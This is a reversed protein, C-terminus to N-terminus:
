SHFRSGELLCSYPWLMKVINRHLIYSHGPVTQAAYRFFQLDYRVNCLVYTLYLTEDVNTGINGPLQLVLINLVSVRKSRRVQLYLSRRKPNVEEKNPNPNPATLPQISHVLAIIWATTQEFSAGLYFHNENRVIWLYIQQKFSVM